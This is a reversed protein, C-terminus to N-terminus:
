LLWFHLVQPFVVRAEQLFFQFLCQTSVDSKRVLRPDTVALSHSSRSSRSCRVRGAARVTRPAQMGLPRLGPEKGQSQQRPGERGGPSMKLLPQKRHAHWAGLSICTGTHPLGEAEASARHSGRRQISNSHWTVQSCKEM